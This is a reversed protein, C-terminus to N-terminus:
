EETGEDIQGHRAKNASRRQLRHHQEEVTLLGWDLSEDQRYEKGLTLATLAKALEFGLYFAHGPDLNTPQTALLKDFLRFPDVDSLRLGASLLELRGREAFLRYNNDRIQAALTALEEDDRTPLKADRLM